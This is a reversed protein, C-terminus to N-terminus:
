VSGAAHLSNSVAGNKSEQPRERMIIHTVYLKGKTESQMNGAYKEVISRINQLGYGHMLKDKKVTRFIGSSPVAGNFTNEISVVFYGNNVTLRVCIKKDANGQVRLCAELANDLANGLVVCLDVNDIGIQMPLNIDLEMLIGNKDAERKKDDIVADIVPHGTDITDFADGINKKLSHVYQRMVEVDGREALSEMVLFHNREDHMLKLISKRSEILQQYHQAQLDLQQEALTLHLHLESQKSFADFLAYVIINMFMIGLVAFIIPISVAHNQYGAFLQLMTVFSILPILLLMGSVRASVDARGARRLRLILLVFFYILFVSLIDMKINLSTENLIEPLTNGMILHMMQPVFLELMGSLLMLFLVLFAKMQWVGDYLIFTLLLLSTVATIAVWPARPLFVGTLCKLIIIVVYAPLVLKEMRARVQLFGGFFVFAAFYDFIITAILFM